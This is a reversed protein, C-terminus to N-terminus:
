QVQISSSETVSTDASIANFSFSAAAVFMTAPLLHLYKM